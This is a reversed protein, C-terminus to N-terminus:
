NAQKQTSGTPSTTAGTRMVGSGVVGFFDSFNIELTYWLVKYLLLMKGSFVDNYHQTEGVPKNDVTTQSLTQKLFDLWERANMKAHIADVAESLRAFDIDAEANLFQAINIGSKESGQESFIGKLAGIAQIFAPALCKQLQYFVLTATEGFLPMVYVSHGDITKTKPDAM